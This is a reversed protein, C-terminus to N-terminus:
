FYDAYSFYVREPGLKELTDYFYDNYGWFRVYSETAYPADIFGLSSAVRHYPGGQMTTLSICNVGLADFHRIVEKFLPQVADPHGRAPLMDYIAGVNYGEYDDLELVVYGVVEDGSVAAKIKYNKRPNQAFRWNMYARDRLFFYSYDGAAESWFNDFREDFSFLEVFKLDDSEDSGVSPPTERSHYSARFAIADEIPLKEIFENVDRIKVLDSFPTPFGVQEHIQAKTLVIPNTTIWYCFDAGGEKKVADIHNTIAKYIGKKRHEPYTAYDDDFYSTLFRDGLKVRMRICHGVGALRGGVTSVIISTKQPNQVYKWRWYKKPDALKEWFPFSSTLLAIIEDEDDPQYHHTAVEESGGGDVM